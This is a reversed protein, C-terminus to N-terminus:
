NGSSKYFRISYRWFLYALIYMAIGVVPTLYIYVEPYAAMDEKRLFYQAPFYNVFAFPMVYIMLTQIFKNFISIPYGAFKRMDWYLMEKLSDTQLLYINLTAIFLFVAGQILVGGAVTILYYGISVGSWHIGVKGASLIFLTIGLGGHGIAAFWDANAFLIQFLLGRPRLMFRDFSGDRVTKGFDRLGTFFIIMIGYTLFLLSFLFLMEYINWGSLTDFKLLTFYIVIIGTAERLFVALSRLFADVRYQFWAKATTKSYVTILHLTDGLKRDERFWSSRRDRIGCYM